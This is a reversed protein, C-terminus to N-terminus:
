RTSQHPLFLSKKTAESLSSLASSESVHFAVEGETESIASVCVTVQQITRFTRELNQAVIPNAEALVMKGRDGIM